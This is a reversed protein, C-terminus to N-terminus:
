VFKKAVKRILPRQKPERPNIKLNYQHNPLYTLLYFLKLCASSYKTGFLIEEEVDCAARNCNL